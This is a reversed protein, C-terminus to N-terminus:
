RSERNMLYNAISLDNQSSKTAFEASGSTKAKTQKMLNKKFNTAIQKSAEKSILSKINNGNFSVFTKEVIEKINKNGIPEALYWIDKQDDYTIREFFYKKFQEKQNEPIFFNIANSDIYNIVSNEIIQAQQEIKQSKIQKEADQQKVIARENEELLYYSEKAREDIKNDKIAKAVALEIIDDDNGRLKLAARYIEKKLDISEEVEDYSPLKRNSVGSLQNFFDENTGGKLRHEIFAYSIPDKEKLLETFQEVAKQKVAEDRRALGEPSLKDVNGYDIEYKQGTIKDLNEFFKNAFEEEEDVKVNNITDQLTDEKPKEEVKPKLEEEPKIVNEAPKVEAANVEAPKVEAVKAEVPAPQNVEKELSNIADVISQM